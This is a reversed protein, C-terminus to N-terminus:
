KEQRIQPWYAKFSLFFGISILIIEVVMASIDNSFNGQYAQPFFMRLLGLAMGLWGLLTIVVPWHLVWINHSRVIALGAVFFLVGSLYILPVIQDDYLTPNWLKLESAVMVILTPGIIGALSKSKHM